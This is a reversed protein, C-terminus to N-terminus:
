SVSFVSPFWTIALCLGILVVLICQLWSSGGIRIQM